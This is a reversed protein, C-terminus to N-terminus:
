RDLVRWGRTKSRQFCHVVMEWLYLRSTVGLALFLLSLLNDLLEFTSGEPLVDSFRQLPNTWFTLGQPTLTTSLLTVAQRLTTLSGLSFSFSKWPLPNELLFSTTKVSWWYTSFVQGKDVFILHLAITTWSSISSMSTPRDWPIGRFQDVRSIPQGVALHFRPAIFNSTSRYQRWSSPHSIQAAIFNTSSRYM